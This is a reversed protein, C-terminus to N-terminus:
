AGRPVSPTPPAHPAHHAEHKPAVASSHQLLMGVVMTAVFVLAGTQGTALSVLAPGPCYGGLGWGVGFLAAGAILRPDLETRTPVHFVTDFLPSTRRRILRYLLSHVGIAGVMVLGLSADWPGTVDLFGIVKDPQTMGSIGLGAGFLLGALLAALHAKM